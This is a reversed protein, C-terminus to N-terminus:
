AASTAAVDTYAPFIPGSAPSPKNLSARGRSCGWSPLVSWPRTGASLEATRHSTCPGFPASPAFAGERGLEPWSVGLSIFANFCGDEERPEEETFRQPASPSAPHREHLDEESELLYRADTYWFCRTGTFGSTPPQARTGWPHPAWQLRLGPHLDRPSRRPASHDWEAQIVLPCPCPFLHGQSGAPHGAGM